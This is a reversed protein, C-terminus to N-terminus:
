ASGWRRRAEEQVQRLPWGLELAARVCDEYEPMARLVEGNLLAVKMRVICGGVTVEEFRRGLAHRLVAQQRVGLTSTQRLILEVLRAADSPECLAELRTGPRGKKMHVPSLTADLAGAALLAAQVHALVQPSEDDLDATLLELPRSELTM